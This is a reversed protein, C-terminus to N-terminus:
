SPWSGNGRENWQFATEIAYRHLHKASVYHFVGVVARKLMANFSEATNAHVRFEGDTRAFGDDSHRVRHHAAYERGVGSYAPLEDTVRGQKRKPRQDKPLLKERHVKRPKGGVYTEDLEVVGELLIAEAAMMARIRHGMHWATKYSVGLWDALKMASIGKSSTTIMYMAILWTRLPLKTNHLATGSTVSYRYRCDLCTFQGRRTRLRSAREEVGCRPCVPGDPWRAEDFWRRAAAETPYRRMLTKLKM